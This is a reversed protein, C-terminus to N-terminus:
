PTSLSWLMWVLAAAFALFSIFVITGRRGHGLLAWGSGPCFTARRRAQARLRKEDPLDTQSPASESPSPAISSM